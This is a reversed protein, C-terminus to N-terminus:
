CQEAAMLQSHHNNYLKVVAWRDDILQPQQQITKGGSLQWWNFTTTTIYNEWQEATDKEKLLKAYWYRLIKRLRAFSLIQTDRYREGGPSVWYRLIETDKEGQRLETDCYRLIKRWRLLVTDWYGMVTKKPRPETDQSFACYRLISSSRSLQTDRQFLVTDWYRHGRVMMNWYRRLCGVVSLNM